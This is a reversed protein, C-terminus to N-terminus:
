ESDDDELASLFAERTPLSALPWSAVLRVPHYGERGERNAFRGADHKARCFGRYAELTSADFDVVYGWEAFLSDTPFKSADLIVGADLMAGPKGQTERLLQYWDPRSRKEGVNPNAYYALRKIDEDTPESGGDVVRLASARDRADKHDTGAIWSRVDEGLGGPYSDYHNYAIKEVGDVVFGVFGRTSM